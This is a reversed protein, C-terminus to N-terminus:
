GVSAPAAGTWTAFQGPRRDPVDQLLAAGRALWRRCTAQSELLDLADAARPDDLIGLEALGKLGGLIDYHWYLPYHLEVFEERMVRGDSRRRFLHRELFVESARTAAARASADGTASSYAALARM